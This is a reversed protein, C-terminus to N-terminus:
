TRDYALRALNALRRLGDARRCRAHRSSRAMPQAYLLHCNGNKGMPDPGPRAIRAPMRIVHRNTFVLVRASGLLEDHSRGLHLPRCIPASFSRQDDRGVAAGDSARNRRPIARALATTDRSRHM